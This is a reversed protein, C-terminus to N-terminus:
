YLTALEIAMMLEHIDQILFSEQDKVYPRVFFYRQKRDTESFFHKKKVKPGNNQIWIRHGQISESVMGFEFRM